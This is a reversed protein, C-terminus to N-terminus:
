INLFEVTNSSQSDSSISGSTNGYSATLAILTHQADELQIGSEGNYVLLYGAITDGNTGDLLIGDQTNSSSIGLTIIDKTGDLDQVGNLTNGKTANGVLTDNSSSQLNIGNGSNSYSSNNLIQNSNGIYDYIGDTESSAVGNGSVTNCQIVVNNSDNLAIGNFTINNAVTNGSVQVNSSSLVFIGAYGYNHQISNNAIEISSFRTGTSAQVLIGDDNGSITNGSASTNESGDNYIFIGASVIPPDNPPDGASGELTNGSITNGQVQATAGNSVQVGYETIGNNAVGRGTITNGQVRATSDPGDVLVGAGAYGTVRNDIVKATGGGQSGSVQSIGIDIGINFNPNSANVIGEVTNNSITASGGGLVLIGEWLNGDTDKSGDVTFGNVVDNNGSIDITAGGVNVGTLAIPTVTLPQIVVAGPNGEADLTVGNETVKVTEQYTGPYVDITPNPYLKPNAAAAALAASITTFDYSAGTGVTLITPAPNSSSPGNYGQSFGYNPSFGFGQPLGCDAPVIRDELLEVQMAPGNARRITQPKEKPSQLQKRSFPNM